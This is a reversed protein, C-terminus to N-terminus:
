ARSGFDFDRGEGGEEEFDEEEEQGMGRKATAEVRPSVVRRTEAEGRSPCVGVDM